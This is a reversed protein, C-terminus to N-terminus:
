MEVLGTETIVTSEQYTDYDTNIDWLDPQTNNIVGEAALLGMLISHDQNNYKFAGYRGIVSLKKVTKLYNEIPELTNKYGRKYVPYCRPIRYVHGDLIKNDGIIGTERIEKKALNILFNDDKKWLDDEFNCWYELVLISSEEDSYLEPTWNRFNTIRGTQLDPAHIYLWNDPFLDISDINLYVLITNRFQLSLAAERVEESVEPM